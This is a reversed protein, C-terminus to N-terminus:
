QVMKAEIAQRLVEKFRELPLRDFIEAFFGEVAMRVAVPRPLGRSMLYFLQEDNLRSTASGHTCRLDNAMIELKPDSDARATPSLLLNRNAQYANTKQAGHHVRIMGTFTSRARDKVADKYLLDSTTHPAFHEQLTQLDFHQEADAFVLGLMESNAGDGRLMSEVNTKTVQGGFAAIFSRLTANRGVQSRITGIEWTSRGWNQWWVHRVQAADGLVLEVVPAVFRQRGRTPSSVGEILTVVSNPEAVVLTHPFVALGDTEVSTFSLLPLSVEVGAPVYLFTGGTWLAGHLAQFKSEDPRVSQMFQTRFLASHDRLATEMDTFLVGAQQLEPDLDRHVSRSDRQILVGSRIEAAEVSRQLDSPMPGPAPPAFATLDPLALGSLDTRRWQEDKTTPLPLREYAAFAQLRLARMWDPEALQTSLREVVDRTFGRRQSVQVSQEAM